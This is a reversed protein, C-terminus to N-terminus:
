RPPSKSYRNKTHNTQSSLQGQREAKVKWGIIPFGMGHKLWRLSQGTMWWLRWFRNPWFAAANLKDYFYLYNRWQLAVIARQSYRNVQSENHRVVSDPCLWIKGYRRARKSFELDEGFSYAPLEDLLERDFLSRRYATVGNAVRLEIGNRRRIPASNFFGRDFLMRGISFPNLGRTRGSDELQCQFGIAGSDLEFARILREVCDSRLECDDDLFLVIDCATMKAGVNRAAAAGSIKPDHLHVLSPLSPLRYKPTSQDVVIIQAPQTPQAQISALCTSIDDPRDKSAIVIAVTPPQHLAEVASRQEM